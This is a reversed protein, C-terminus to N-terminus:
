LMFLLREPLLRLRKCYREYGPLGLPALNILKLVSWVVGAKQIFELTLECVDKILDDPFEEDGYLLFQTFAENLINVHGLPGPLPTSGCFFSM